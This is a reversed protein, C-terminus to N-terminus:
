RKLNRRQILQNNVMTNQRSYMTWGSPFTPLHSPIAPEILEQETKLYNMIGAIAALKRKKSIDL